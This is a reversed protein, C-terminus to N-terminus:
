GPTHSCALGGEGVPAQGRADGRYIQVPSLPRAPEPAPTGPSFLRAWLVRAEGGPGPPLLSWLDRFSPHM